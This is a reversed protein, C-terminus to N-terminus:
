VKIAMYYDCIVSDDNSTTNTAWIEFFDDEFVDLLKNLSFPYKIGSTVCRVETEALKTTGNKYLAVMLNQNAADVEIGGTVVIHLFRDVTPLYTATNASCTFKIEVEEKNGGELKYYTNATTLTTSTGTFEIYATPSYNKSGSNAEFRIDADAKSDWTFGSITTGGANPKFINGTFAAYEYTNGTTNWQIGTQGSNIIFITNQVSHRQTDGTYFNIGYNNNEFTCESVGISSGGINCVGALSCNEVISNFLWIETGPESFCIGRQFNDIVVNQVESYPSGSFQIASYPENSSCGSMTVNDIEFNQTVTFLSQGSMSNPVCINTVGVGRGSIKLNDKTITIPSTINYDGPELLIVCNNTLYTNAYDVASKLDTFLSSYPSVRLVQPEQDTGLTLRYKREAAGGSGFNCSVFEFREDSAYITFGSTQAINQGSVTRLTISNSSTVLRPKSFQMAKGENAANADPLIITLNGGSDDCYYHTNFRSVTWTGPSLFTAGKSLATTGSTTGSTGAYTLYVVDYGETNRYRQISSNNYVYLYDCCQYMQGEVLGTTSGTYTDYLWNSQNLLGSIITSNTIWESDTTLYNQLQSSGSTTIIKETTDSLSTSYLSTATLTNASLSPAILGCTMTDGTLHVFTSNADVVRMFEVITGGTNVTYLRGEANQSGLQGPYLANYAWTGDSSTESAGSVPVDTTYLQRVPLNNLFYEKSM